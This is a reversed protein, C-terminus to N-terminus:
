SFLSYLYDFYRHNIVIFFPSAAERLHDLLDM